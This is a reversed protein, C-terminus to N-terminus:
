RKCVKLMRAQLSRDGCLGKWTIEFQYASKPTSITTAADAIARSAARSALEQFSTGLEKKGSKKKLM